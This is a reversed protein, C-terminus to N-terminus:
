AVKKRPEAMVKQAALKRLDVSLHNWFLAPIRPLFFNRTSFQGITRVFQPREALFDVILKGQKMRNCIGCAAVVNGCCSCGGLTKPLLHDPEARHKPEVAKEYISIGCYFCRDGQAETLISKWERPSMAPLYCTDQRQHPTIITQRQM